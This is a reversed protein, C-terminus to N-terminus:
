FFSFVLTEFKKNSHKKNLTLTKKNKKIKTKSALLNELLFDLLKPM